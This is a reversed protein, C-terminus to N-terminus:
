ESDSEGAFAVTRQRKRTTTALDVMTEDADDEGSQANDSEQDDEGSQVIDSEQSTEHEDADVSSSSSIVKRNREARATRKATAKAKGKTRNEADREQKVIRCVRYFLEELDQDDLIEVTDDVQTSGFGVKRWRIATNRAM